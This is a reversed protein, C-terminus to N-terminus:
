PPARPRAGRIRRLAAGRAGHHVAVGPGMPSAGDSPPGPEASCRSPRQVADPVRYWREESEVKFLSLDYMRTGAARHATQTM